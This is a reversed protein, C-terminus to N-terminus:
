NGASAILEAMKNTVPGAGQSYNSMVAVTWGSAIM